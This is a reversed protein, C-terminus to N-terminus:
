FGNDQTHVVQVFLGPAAVVVPVSFLYFFNLVVSNLNEIRFIKKVRM